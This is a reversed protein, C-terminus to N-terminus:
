LSLFFVCVFFWNLTIKQQMRWRLSHILLFFLTWWRKDHWEIWTFLYWDRICERVSFFMSQLCSLFVLPFRTEESPSMPYDINIKLPDLSLSLSFMFSLNVKKKPGRNLCSIAPRDNILNVSHWYSYSFVVVVVAFLWHALQIHSSTSILSSKEEDRLEKRRRQYDIIFLFTQTDVLTSTSMIWRLLLGLLWFLHFILISDRSLSGIQM